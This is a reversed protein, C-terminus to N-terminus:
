RWRKIVRYEVGEPLTCSEVLCFSEAPWIIPEFEIQSPRKAKRILTVHPAFPREDVPVGFEAALSTLHMALATVAPDPNLSSLCLIGPKRWFEVRDFTIAMESVTIGAAAETLAHETETDVNGLFTLTVHLNDARIPRGDKSEIARILDTCQKRVADDPWLAFFLRKM